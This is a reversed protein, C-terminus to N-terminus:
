ESKIYVAPMLYIANVDVNLVYQRYYEADPYAQKVSEASSFTENYAGTYLVNGNKGMVLYQKDTKNLATSAYKDADEQNITFLADTTKGAKDEYVVQYVAKEFKLSGPMCFSSYGAYKKKSSSSSVVDAPEATWSMGSTTNKVTVTQIRNDGSSVEAFVSLKVTPASTKSSYDYVLQHHVTSIKINVDSCSIAFLLLYAFFCLRAINKKLQTRGRV